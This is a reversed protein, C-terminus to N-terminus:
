TGSLLLHMHIQISHLFVITSMMDRSVYAGKWGQSPLLWTHLAWLNGSFAFHLQWVKGGGLSDDSTSPTKKGVQDEVYAVLLRNGKLFGFVIEKERKGKWCEITGKKM